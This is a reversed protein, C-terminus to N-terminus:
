HGYWILYLYIILLVQMQVLKTALKGAGDYNSLNASIDIDDLSVPKMANTSNVTKQEEKTEYLMRYLTAAPQAYQFNSIQEGKVYCTM